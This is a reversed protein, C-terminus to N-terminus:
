TGLTGCRPAPRLVEFRQGDPAVRLFTYCRGLQGFSTMFDIPAPLLGGASYDRVARLGDLFRQRTPCPGAEALGRVFMDAAIWGSLSAQRNPPQMQPAYRGMAALFARHGPLDLEFPQYDVFLNVNLGGLLPGFAKLLSQDYGSPSLVVRLDTGAEKAGLVVQGFAGGTVTGVLTDAGSDRVQNGVARLDIPGTAEVTGVVRVGAGELSARLEEALEGSAASLTSVAIVASTGGQDAVFEGWTSVSVGDAIMNSYSFMNDFRTWAADLSTGTVPVGLSHLYEASGDSATTSEMIGFVDQEEVLRQAATRNVGPQSGDDQWRYTLSRGHVGGDANAVGLRADVGARFPGFLSAANGSDPYLLGLRVEDGAIGPSPPCSPDSRSPAPPLAGDRSVCSVCAVGVLLAAVGARM